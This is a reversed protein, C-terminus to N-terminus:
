ESSYLDLNRRLADLHNMINNKNPNYSCSLLWKREQFNLEIYLGEIPKTDTRLFQAQIDERIFAMIAGGHQDRDLRFPSAYGPIRFQGVPFFEDLKTESNVLADIIGKIQEALM